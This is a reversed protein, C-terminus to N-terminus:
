RLDEEPVVGGRARIEERDFHTPQGGITADSDEGEDEDIRQSKPVRLYRLPDDKRHLIKNLIKM